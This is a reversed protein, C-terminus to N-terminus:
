RRPLFDQISNFRFGLMLQHATLNIEYNGAPAGGVALGIDATGYDVYRYGLDISLRDSHHYVIGGGVHWMFENFHDNGSVVSDTTILKGAHVGVGGGLYIDLPRCEIPIDYWMNATASWRDTMNTRYLFGVPGPPGPFSGMISSLLDHYMGQVELRVTGDFRGVTRPIAVGLTGGLDLTDENDQFLPSGGTNSFNGATNFGGQRLHAFTGTFNVSAYFSPGCRCDCDQQADADDFLEMDNFSTLSNESLEHADANLLDDPSALSLEGSSSAAYYDYKPKESDVFLSSHSAADAPIHFVPSDILSSEAASSSSTAYYDYDAQASGVLVAVVFLAHASLRTDM